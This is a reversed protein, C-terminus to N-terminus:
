KAVHTDSMPLIADGQGCCTGRPWEFPRGAKPIAGAQGRAFRAVRPPGSSLMSERFTALFSPKRFFRWFPTMDSAHM